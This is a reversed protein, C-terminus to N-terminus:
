GAVPARATVTRGLAVEYVEEHEDLWREQDARDASRVAALADAWVVPDLLDRAADVISQADGEVGITGPVNRLVERLGGSRSLVVPRGAGVWEAVSYPPGGPEDWRSPLVAVDTTEFFRRKEAGGVTGAYRIEGRAAAEEVLPRLRGDGAVQVAYGLRALEPAAEVLSEIGKARELAGLYALTRPPSKAAALEQETPSAIPLRVVRSRAPDFIGDHRRRVYDSVFITKTVADAWRGLRATRAGCLMPHQCCASGDRRLLTVRPCLLYYDHVTHVVPLELERCIGWISTTIGPLNNTHVLDPREALVLDLLHKGRLSVLDGLHNRLKRIRDDRWDSDHIVTTRGEVPDARVPFASLVSTEHGRLELGEVLEAVYKEAGGLSADAGHSNVILIRM